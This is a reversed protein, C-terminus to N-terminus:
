RHIRIKHLTADNFFTGSDGRIVYLSARYISSVRSCQLGRIKRYAWTWGHKTTDNMEKGGADKVNLKQYYCRFNELRQFAGFLFLGAPQRRRPKQTDKELTQQVLM